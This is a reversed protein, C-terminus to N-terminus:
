RTRRTPTSTSWRRSTWASGWTELERALATAVAATAALDDREGLWRMPPWETWPARLRQVRGGEQDIALLV